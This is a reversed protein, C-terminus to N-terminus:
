VEEGTITYSMVNNAYTQSFDFIVIKYSPIYLHVLEGDIIESGLDEQVTRTQQDKEAIPIYDIFDIEKMLVTRKKIEEVQAQAVGKINVLLKSGNVVAHLIGGGITRAYFGLEKWKQTYSGPNLTLTLDAIQINNLYQTAM